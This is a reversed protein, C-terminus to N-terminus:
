FVFLVGIVRYMYGFLFLIKGVGVCDRLEQFVVVFDFMCLVFVYKKGDCEFIVIVQDQVLEVDFVFDCVVCFGNVKLGVVEFWMQVVIFVVFWM